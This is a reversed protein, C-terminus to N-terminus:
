LEFYTKILGEFNKLFEDRLSETKFALFAYTGVATDSIVDNTFRNICFKTGESGWDPIWGDNYIHMLQSLQAKALSSEAQKETKFIDIRFCDLENELFYSTGYNNGSFGELVKLENWKKPLVREFKMAELQKILAQREEETRIEIDLKM